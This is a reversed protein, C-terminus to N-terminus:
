PTISQRQIVGSDVVIGTRSIAEFAMMDGTVEFLAFVQDQDFGVATIASPRLDGKRLQGSSGIVFHTVGKQPKLREYIHDHGTFVAQVRHKVLMPELAVRIDVNSGHRGGDSYLPHHLVAIKWNERAGKLSEEIWALQRPDLVNTDLMFFRVGKAAFSYYREGHMNFSAYFRNNPDDHNGLVAYFPVGADLLPRYPREFKPEFDQPEQRGYMNDGAMIVLEFPFRARASVM